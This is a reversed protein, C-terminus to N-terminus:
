VCYLLTEGPKCRRVDDHSQLHTSVDSATKKPASLLTTKIKPLATERESSVSVRGSGPLSVGESAESVRRPLIPAIGKGTEHGAKAGGSEPLRLPLPVIM